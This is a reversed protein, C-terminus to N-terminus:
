KRLEEVLPRFCVEPMPRLRSHVRVPFPLLARLGEGMGRLPATLSGWANGGAMQGLGASLLGLLGGLAVPGLIFGVLLPSVIAIVGPLIMERLAAGTSIEVCKGYDPKEAGSMIGPKDKFQRRVEEIMDYAARGVSRMSLATFLFPLMAGLFLSSVVYPDLLDIIEINATQSYSVFLALATLAASGIAFGKGVAATTNGVSDLTDTITRVDEPLGAM